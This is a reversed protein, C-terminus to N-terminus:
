RSFVKPISQGSSGAYVSMGNKTLTRFVDFTISRELACPLLTLNQHVTKVLCTLGSHFVTQISSVVPFIVTGVPEM